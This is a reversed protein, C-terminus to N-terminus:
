ARLVKFLYNNDWGAKKRKAKVGVKTSKESRLKNLAVHRLIALNAPANGTRTRNHDERFAVDLVWHLSNEIGWHSRIIKNLKEANAELSTIYLRDEKMIQGAKKGNKYEIHSEILIMSKLSKWNDIVDKTLYAEVSIAYCRRTEIRGHDLDLSQSKQANKKAGVKYFSESLQEHLNGQNEKVSLVYDAQSDIIQTAIATQTGMADITIVQGQISLLKLLQPIATIENSKDATRVQGLVLRNKNAWASVIHIASKDTDKSRRLTKGDINIVEETLECLHNAWKTFCKEFAATQILSFVRGFTDHSPIGRHAVGLVQQFFTEKSCGFEEVEVWDDAGCIIAVIAIMLITDLSHIKGHASRPDELTEFASQLLELGNKSQAM